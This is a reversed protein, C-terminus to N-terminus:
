KRFKLINFTKKTKDKKPEKIIYNKKFEKWFKKWENNLNIGYRIALQIILVQIGILKRSVEKENYRKDILIHVEKHLMELLESAKTDKIRAKKELKKVSKKLSNFNM